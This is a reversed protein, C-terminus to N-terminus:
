KTYYIGDDPLKGGVSTADADLLIGYLTNLATKMSGGDIYTIKSTPIAKESVAASVTIIELDFIMQGAEANNANVYETSAKYEELFKDLQAKHDKVFNNSVVVCGQMLTDKEAVKNWEETVDLVVSAMGGVSLNTALPEPVMVVSADGKKIDAVVTTGETEYIIDVDNDPDVGNKTLIYRLAYEPTAGEGTTYITRGKLDSVSTIDTEGTQLVYLVGLTNVAAIQLPAGTNYLKAAVNTPLAAIDFNGNKIDTLYAADPSAAVSFNYKLASKGEKSDNWLKAIGMGTPGGLVKVDVVHDDNAKGDTKGDTKGGCSVLAFLMILALTVSLIKKM